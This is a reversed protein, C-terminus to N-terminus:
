VQLDVRCCVDRPLWCHHVVPTTRAYTVVESLFELVRSDLAGPAGRRPIKQEASHARIKVDDAGDGKWEETLGGVIGSNEGIRTRWVVCAERAASRAKASMGHEFLGITLLCRASGFLVREGIGFFIEDGPLIGHVRWASFQPQQHTVGLLKPGPLAPGSVGSLTFSM